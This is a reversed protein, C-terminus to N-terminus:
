GGITNSRNNSTVYGKFIVKEGSVCYFVLYYNGDEPAVFTTDGPFSFTTKDATLPTLLLSNSFYVLLNGDGRLNTIVVKVKDGKHLKGIIYQDGYGLGAGTNKLKDGIEIRKQDALCISM